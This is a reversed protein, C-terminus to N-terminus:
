NEDDFVEKWELYPTEPLTHPAYAEEVTFTRGFKKMAYEDNTLHKCFDWGPGSHSFWSRLTYGTDTYRYRIGIIEKEDGEKPLATNTESTTIKEM